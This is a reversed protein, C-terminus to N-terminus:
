RIYNAFTNLQKKANFSFHLMFFLGFAFHQFMTLSFINNFNYVLASFQVDLWSQQQYKCITSTSYDVGAKAFVKTLLWQVKDTM